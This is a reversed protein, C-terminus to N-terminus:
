KKAANVEPSGIAGAQIGWKELIEQYKGNAILTKLASLLPATMGSNKPVALGYPAIGYSGIVEVPTAEPRGEEYYAVPSDAMALQAYGDLLAQTADNQNAYALVAVPKKGSAACRRSQATADRQETTGTNVAVTYGCLDALASVDTYVESKEYFSTGALYYDVFTVARERNKTDTISSAGIDYAGMAVGRIIKDFGVDAFTVKLGMLAGVASMLEPDMGVLTHDDAIFENPAYTPDTAVTLTGRVKIAAPVQAAIAANEGRLTTSSSGGCGAVLLPATVLALGAVVLRVVSRM